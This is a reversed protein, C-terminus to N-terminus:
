VSPTARAREILHDVVGLARDNSGGVMAPSTRWRGAVGLQPVSTVGYARVLDNAQVMAQAVARSHWAAEFAAPDVGRPQVWQSIEM